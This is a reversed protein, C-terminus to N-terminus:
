GGGWRLVRIRASIAQSVHSVTNRAWLTWSLTSASWWVTLLMMSLCRGRCGILTLDSLGGKIVSVMALSIWTLSVAWLFPQLDYLTIARTCRLILPLLRWNMFSAKFLSNSVLVQQVVTFFNVLWDLFLEAVYFAMMSPTLNDEASNVSFILILIYWRRHSHGSVMQLHLVQDQCCVPGSECQRFWTRVQLVQYM